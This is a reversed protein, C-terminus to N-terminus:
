RGECWRAIDAILELPMPKDYPLQITGKSTKYEKLRDAFVEVAEPGPYLGIHKKFAAFQILNHKKWYTPMSWSIKERADPLAAKIASNVQRLFTQVEKPQGTIYEEITLPAQGCYHDQNARKFSRGCRPCKWLTKEQDAKAPPEPVAKVTVTVTDGPGKKIKDRIDKRIGIIYCVSGDDNKVGMNVISGHCPEKDFTIDAKVRGRGFEERIDYPFRIYAGGKGPVPEIVGCFEYVKNNM